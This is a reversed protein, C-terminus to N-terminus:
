RRKKGRRKGKRKGSTPKAGDPKPEAGAPAILPLTEPPAALSLRRRLVARATGGYFECREWEALAEDKARAVFAAAESSVAGDIMQKVFQDIADVFAAPSAVSFLSLGFAVRIDSLDVPAGVCDGLTREVALRHDPDAAIANVDVVLDADDHAHAYLYLHFLLFLQFVAPNEPSRDGDDFWDAVLKVFPDALSARVTAFLMDLFYPNGDAWQETYSAWQHFLNRVLLVHRGPFARALASFRGLTRTDTLVPVRHRDRASAILGEVYARESPSLAGRVGGEPLFAQLAMRPEYGRVRGDAGILSAYELFYPAGAPHKSDWKAFDNARLDPITCASLREHFIECYAITTPAQRLKQWLWTSATRWSSHIFVPPAIAPDSAPQGRRPQDSTARLTLNM